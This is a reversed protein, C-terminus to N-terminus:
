LMVAVVVFSAEKSINEKGKLFYRLNPSLYSVHGYDQYETPLTLFTQKQLVIEAIYYSGTVFSVFSCSFSFSFLFFSCVLGLFMLFSFKQTM